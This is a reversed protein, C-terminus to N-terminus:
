CAPRRGPLEQVATRAVWDEKRSALARVRVGRPAVELLEVQTNAPFSGVRCRGQAPVLHATGRLYYDNVWGKVRPGELTSVEIWEGRSSEVAVLTGDPVQWQPQDGILRSIGVKPDALLGHDDRGSLLLVSREPEVAATGSGCGAVLIFAAAALLRRATVSLHGPEGNGQERERLDHQM